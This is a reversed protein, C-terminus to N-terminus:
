FIEIRAGGSETAGVKVVVRQTGVPTNPAVTFNIQTVGVLGYPIGAFVVEAAVDGITMAVPAVPRPLQALTANSAPAAGTAIAPSVAGQGTIYLICTEGRGCRTQPVTLSQTNTFIGPAVAQVPVNVTASGGQTYGITLRATCTQTEYPIQLNIQGPSVYYFPANVGDVTATIGAKYAILPVAAAAQTGAALDRGFVSIISGPAFAQQFSAGNAIGTIVPAPPL